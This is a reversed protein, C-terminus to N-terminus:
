VEGSFTSGEKRVTGTTRGKSNQFAEGREGRWFQDGRKPQSGGKKRLRRGGKRRREKRFTSHKSKNGRGIGGGQGKSTGHLDTHTGEKKGKTGKARKGELLFTTTM